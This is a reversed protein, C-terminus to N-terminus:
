PPNAYTLDPRQFVKQSQDSSTLTANLRQWDYDVKQIIIYVPTDAVYNYNYTFSTREVRGRRVSATPVRFIRVETGAILNTLTYAKTNNIVVDGTGETAEWTTPDSGTGANITLDNATRVLVRHRLRQGFVFARTPTPRETSRTSSPTRTTTPTPTSRSSAFSWTRTPTGCSRATTPAFPPDALRRGPHRGDHRAACTILVRPDGDHDGVNGSRSSPDEQGGAHVPQSDSLMTLAGWSAGNWFEHAFVATADEATSVEVEIEDYKAVSAYYFADNVVPIAPTLNVDATGVDNADVTEDTFV